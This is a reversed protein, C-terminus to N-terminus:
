VAGADQSARTEARQRKWREYGGKSVEIREGRAPRGGGGDAGGVRRPREPEHAEAPSTAAGAGPAGGAGGVKLYDHGADGCGVDQPGFVGGTGAVSERAAEKRGHHFGKGDIWVIAVFVTAAALSGTVFGIAFGILGALAM